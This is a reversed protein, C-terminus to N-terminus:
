ARPKPPLPLIMSVRRRYDGYDEGFAATLDREELLIGVFLYASALGAFLVRGASMHPTSWFAILFGLYIPHRVIRYLGPTRFRPPAFGKLGFLELHDILFTSAVVLVWGFAFMGWLAHKASGELAYLVPGCPRWFWCLGFLIASAVLVYTPREASAPIVKVWIRKFGARAMVSHQVAFLGLLGANIGYDLAGGDRGPFDIIAWLFWVSYGLSGLFGLYCVIRYAISM